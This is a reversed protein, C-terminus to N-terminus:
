KGEVESITGNQWFCGLYRTDDQNVPEFCLEFKNTREEWPTVAALYFEEIWNDLKSKLEPSKQVEKNLLKVITGLEDIIRHAADLQGKTPGKVNGELIFVTKSKQNPILHESTWTQEFSPNDSKIRTELTGLIPDEIFTKKGFLLKKILEM